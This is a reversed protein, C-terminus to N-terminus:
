PASARRRAQMVNPDIKFFFEQEVLQRVRLAGLKAPTFRMLPLAERVSTAFLQHTTRLMEFTRMDARGTTDVVYRVVASGQVNTSLLEPPYEPVASFPDRQVISDVEVVSYVSDAGRLAALAELNLETRGADIGLNLEADRGDPSQGHNVDVFEGTGGPVGLALWQLREQRPAHNPTRDPPLNLRVAMERVEDLIAEPAHRTAVVALAVLSAHALLSLSASGGYSRHKAYSERWLRLPRSM